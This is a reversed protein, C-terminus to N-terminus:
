TFSLEASDADTAKKVGMNKIRVPINTPSDPPPKPVLIKVPGTYPIWDHHVGMMAVLRGVNMTLLLLAFMNESKDVASAMWKINSALVGVNKAIDDGTEGIAWTCYVDGKAALGLQAFSLLAKVQDEAKAARKAKAKDSDEPEVRRSRPAKDDNSNPHNFLHEGCWKAYGRGRKVCPEGCDPELCIRISPTDLPFDDM